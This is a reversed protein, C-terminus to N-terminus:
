SYVEKGGNLDVPVPLAVDRLDEVALRLYTSTSQLTRHGLIDGITKVSTGKRLLFVAYSHRIRHCSGRGPVDLRSRRVWYQFRTSIAFTTLPGIPARRRLFLQRFPLPPASKKLYIHLATGVSDTLPLELVAGTKRQSICIKRTRWHINDLTLAAVDCARLGYIAMLFFMTFDRLGALSSRDISHLIAEVTEWPLASPLQEERYVRPTDIQRDLGYSIEGKLALFRLFSRLRGVIHKLSARTFRHSIAKVFAELDNVTLAKLREPHKELKVYALFESATYSNQRITSAAAGRVTELYCTYASLYRSAASAATAEGPKLLNLTRLYAELADTTGALYPFRRGLNKRCVVLDSQEIERLNHVDRRALVSEIHSLLWIRQRIYSDTYRRERLWIVFRDAIPGLIALSSYRQFSAPCLTELM